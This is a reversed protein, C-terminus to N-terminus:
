FLKIQNNLRHRTYLRADEVKQAYDERTKESFGPVSMGAREFDEFLQRRRKGEPSMNLDTENAPYIELDVCFKQYREKLPNFYPKTRAFPDKWSRKEPSLPEAPMSAIKRELGDLLQDKYGRMEDSPDVKVPTFRVFKDNVRRAPSEPAQYEPRGTRTVPRFEHMKM